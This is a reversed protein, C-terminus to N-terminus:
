YRGKLRLDCEDYYQRAERYNKDDPRKVMIMVNAFSSRCLRLNNKGYYKRGQNMHFKVMEDFKKQSEILYKRALEHSPFFSLAAQFSEMARSYQGNRYDRFGRVYHEQATKYQLSDHGSVEKQKRLQDVAGASQEISKIIDGDTRLGVETKKTTPGSTLFFYGGIAIVAIIGYFTGRSGGGSSVSKPRYAQQKPPAQYGGAARPPPPAQRSAPAAAAGGLISPSDNRVLAVPSAASVGSNVVIKLVVDGVQVQADTQIIKEKVREGDILIFNKPSLNRVLLQGNEMRIEAHIRSMKMDNSFALDNGPDRGIRLVDKDLYADWPFGPKTSVGQLVSIKYKISRSLVPVASM